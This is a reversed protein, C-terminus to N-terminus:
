LVNDRFNAFPSKTDQDLIYQDDNNYYLTGSSKKSRCCGRSFRRYISYISLLGFIVGVAIGAIEAKSMGSDGGGGSSGNPDVVEYTSTSVVTSNIVGLLSTASLTTATQILTTVFTGSSVSTDLTTVLSNYLASSSGSTYVCNIIYTVKCTDTSSLKREIESIAAIASGVSSIYVETDYDTLVAQVTDTFADYNSTSSQFSSVSVGVLNQEVTFYLLESSPSVPPLTPLQSPKTPMMTPVKTPKIPQQTPAVSPRATPVTSVYSFKYDTVITYNGNVSFFNGDTYINSCEYPLSRLTLADCSTGIAYGPLAVSSEGFGSYQMFQVKYTTNNTIYDFCFDTNFAIYLYPRNSDCTVNSYYGDFLVYNDMEIDDESEATCTVISSGWGSLAFYDFEDIDSTTCENSTNYYKTVAFTSCLSDTYYDYHYSTVNVDNQCYIKMSKYPLTTTNLLNSILYCTDTLAGIEQIKAEDSSCTSDSYKSITLVSPASTPASTPVLHNYTFKYDTIITNNRDIEFIYPDAITDSCDNPLSQLNSVGTCNLTNESFIIGPYYESPDTTGSYRAFQVSSESKYEFCFDSAFATYFYPNTDDCTENSSYGTFYVFDDYMDINDLSRYGCYLISSDWGTLAWYDAFDYSEISNYEVCSSTYNHKTKELLGSDDCSESSYKSTTVGILNNDYSTCSVMMSQVPGTTNHLNTVTLCTDILIGIEQVNNGNDQCSTNDYRSLTLWQSSVQALLLVLSLYTLPAPAM